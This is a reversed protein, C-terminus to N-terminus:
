RGAAIGAVSRLVDAVQRRTEDLPGGTDIVFHARRRKEGDPLQKAAIAAFREETMGPRALVRARQVAPTTRVVIAVDVRDDGGVEFLLPIDLLAIRRRADAARALFAIEEERVLPHVIKELRALAPPNDFVVEGLRSRDVRGEVVTGPFASEILPAARDQYLRHVVTDADFTAVGMEAFMRACTSKGMGVSGTLGLVLM